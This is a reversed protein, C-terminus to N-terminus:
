LIRLVIKDSNLQKHAYIKIYSNIDHKIAKVDKTFLCWLKTHFNAISKRSLHKGTIKNLVTNWFHIGYNLDKMDMVIFLKNDEKQFRDVFDDIMSDILLKYESITDSVYEINTNGFQKKVAPIFENRMKGRNSWRPTTNLLYAIDFQYAFDLIDNKDIDLLPRCLKVRINENWVNISCNELKKMKKLNFIHKGKAFNTWINEMVDERIHGLVTLADLIRYLDFRIQRTFDEYFNRDINKRQIENISRVYLTIGLMRCYYRVFAEEDDSQERNKYNIHLAILNYGFINQFHAFVYMLIMSDVGGSLSICIRDSLKNNKLFSHVVKGIKSRKIYVLSKSSVSIDHFNNNISETIHYFYPRGIHFYMYVIILPIFYRSFCLLMIPLIYFQISPYLYCSANSRSQLSKKNEIKAYKRLCDKYFRTLIRSSSYDNQKLVNVIYNFNKYIDIHKFPMLVFFLYKDNYRSYKSLYIKSINMASITNLRIQHQFKSNNRYIHRSFQDLVIITAVIEKENMGTPDIKGNRGTPDVYKELTDLLEKHNLIYREITNNNGFWRKNQEDSTGFFWFNLIKDAIDQNM